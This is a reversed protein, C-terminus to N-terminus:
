VLCPRMSILDASAFGQHIIRASKQPNSMQLMKKQQQLNRVDQILADRYWNLHELEQNKLQLIDTQSDRFDLANKITLHLSSIVEDQGLSKQILFSALQVLMADRVRTLGVSDTEHLHYTKQMNELICRDLTQALMHIFCGFVVRFIPDRVSEPQFTCPSLTIM